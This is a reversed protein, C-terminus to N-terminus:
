YVCWDGAVCPPCQNFFPSRGFDELFKNVDFADVSTNCDVDGNCPNGNTCPNFFTSRGFDRLFATVDNADVGGSCDFDCECDCADGIGNGQPPYTDEQDMSCFGNTGCEWRNGRPIMCSAGIYDGRVCTGGGSGNPIYPCNDSGTCTQDSQSPDCIDDNDDDPDCTNGVGDLDNDGQDPNVHDPCNDCTDGIEDSDSDSQTPDYMDPFADCVDGKCDGDSDTQDPNTIAPCNDCVDGFIDEDGNEQSPNYDNPCNDNIHWVVDGDDDCRDLCEYYNPFCSEELAYDLCSPPYYYCALEWYGNCFWLTDKCDSRCDALSPIQFLLLQLFACCTSIILKLVLKNNM